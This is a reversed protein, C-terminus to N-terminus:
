SRLGDDMLARYWDAFWARMVAIEIEDLGYPTFEDDPIHPLEALAGAFVVQDYGPDRERLLEILRERTYRGERSALHVDVFDVAQGEDYLAAMQTAVAADPSFAIM